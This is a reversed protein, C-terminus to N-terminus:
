YFFHVLCFVYKLHPPVDKYVDNFMETWKPKLTKEALAFEKLINKRSEDAWQKEKESNWLSKRELYMRFKTIPSDSTRWHDVEDKSRYATSDDSTSHHGIRYLHLLKGEFNLFNDYIM